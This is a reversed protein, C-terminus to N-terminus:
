GLNSHVYIGVKITEMGFRKVSALQWDSFGNCDYDHEGIFYFLFHVSHATIKFEISLSEANSKV